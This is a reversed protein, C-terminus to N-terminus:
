GFTRVLIGSRLGHYAALSDAVHEFHCKAEPFTIGPFAATAWAMTAEKTASRVGLAARKSDGESIWECPLNHCAAVAVVIGSAWGLLNAAAANQSGGPLEGVIGQIKHELILGHLALSLHAARTAKDDSVMTNKKKTKETRITGYSVIMGKDLISWGLNAFAIDLALLM